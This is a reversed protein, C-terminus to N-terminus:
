CLLTKKVRILCYVSILLLTFGSVGININIIADLTAHNFSILAYQLVVAPLLFLVVRTENIALLFMILFNILIYFAMFIAFKPIFQVASAFGTGFLVSVILGPFAFFAVLGGGILLLQIYLFYTFKKLYDSGQAFLGSIQPYMVLTVTGAGFLFVKGITVVASYIGATTPDFFHKVLIVDFNNLSGMGVGVFLTAISFIFLQHYHPRLTINEYKAFNKKLLLAAVILMVLTGIAMGSFVGRLHMGLLVLVVPIILRLLGNIVNFFAFAKYRLLGQLYASPAILLFSTGFFLGFYLFLGQDQMNLYNALMERSSFIVIFTICGLAGAAVTLEVFLKTLVNFKQATRLASVTRILSNALAGVPIALIVFLSLLANFAGYDDVSLTRGLFLQLLYAFVSSLFSGLTIVVTGSVIDSSSIKSLLTRM